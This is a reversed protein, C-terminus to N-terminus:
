AFGNEEPVHCGWAADDRDAGHVAKPATAALRMGADDARLDRSCRSMLSVSFVHSEVGFGCGGDDVVAREALM